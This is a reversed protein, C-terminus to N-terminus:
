KTKSYSAMCWIVSSEMHFVSIVPDTTVPSKIIFNGFWGLRNFHFTCFAYFVCVSIFNRQGNNKWAWLYVFTLNLCKLAQPFWPFPGNKDPFVNGCSVYIQSTALPNGCIVCLKPDPWVRVTFTVGGGVASSEVTIAMVIINCIIIMVIFIYITFTLVRLTLWVRAVTGM